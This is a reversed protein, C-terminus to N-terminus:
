KTWIINVQKAIQVYNTLDLHTNVAKQQYYAKYWNITRSVATSIDWVPCWGLWTNAKTCDLSLLHAEHPNTELSLEEFDVSNWTTKALRIVERVPLVDSAAPGFNWGEAIAKNGDLLQQGILLYGSLPELVHQWPRIAVPNRIVVRQGSITSKMLDPILRDIAWDGGGIVNGARGSAILVQHQRGYQNLNFYANKYSSTVLETCGKSVSYPDYGGMPDAETLPRGDEPNQYCKDSTVIVVARVSPTQRVCELVKATGIINTELTEIPHQYSYRVLPQAALHFVAEPQYQDFVQQLAKQDRIDGLIHVIPLNLLSWHNPETPAPLSYGIVNAGMQHLWYALWSGKFGTHGTILIKRDQYIGRFLDTM